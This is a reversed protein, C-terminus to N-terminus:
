SRKTQVTAPPTRKHGRGQTNSGAAGLHAQFGPILTASAWAGKSALHHGGSSQQSQRAEKGGDTQLWPAVPAKACM